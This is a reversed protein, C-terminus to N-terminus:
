KSNHNRLWRDNIRKILKESRVREAMRFLRGAEVVYAVDKDAERDREERAETEVADRYQRVASEHKNPKRM